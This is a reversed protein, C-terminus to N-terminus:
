DDSTENSGHQVGESSYSVVNIIQLLLLVEVFLKLVSGPVM